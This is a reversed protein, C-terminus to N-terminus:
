NWRAGRDYRIPRRLQRIDRHRGEEIGIQRQILREVYRLPLGDLEAHCRLVEQIVRQDTVRVVVGDCELVAEVLRAPLVCVSAARRCRSPADGVGLEFRNCRAVSANQLETQLIAELVWGWFLCLPEALFGEHKKRVCTAGPKGCLCLAM